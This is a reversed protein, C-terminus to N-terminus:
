PWLPRSPDVEHHALQYSGIPVGAGLLAGLTTALRNGPRLALRVQEIVTPEEPSGKPARTARSPRVVALRLPLQATATM